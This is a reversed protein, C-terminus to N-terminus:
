FFVLKLPLEKTANLNQHCKTVLEGILLFNDLYLVFLYGLLRLIPLIPKPIKTHVWPVPALGFSPVLFEFILGKFEFRLFKRNSIYSPSAM